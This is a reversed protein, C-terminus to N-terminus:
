ARKAMAEALRDGTYTTLKELAEAAMGKKRRQIAECLQLHFSVIMQRERLRYIILNSIPQLGEIVSYMLLRTLTNGSADAIARHFRVDSACFEQDTLSTSRQNEIETRMIQLHTEDRFECAARCCSTELDLRATMMDSLTLDGVAVMLTTTNALARGAEGLPPSTIFNGGTPGRRSRVLNQAALRKLAERITPRSVNFQAALEEESPLRVDVKLKGELIAARINEAIQKAASTTVVSGLDIPM